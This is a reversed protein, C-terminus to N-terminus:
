CCYLCSVCHYLLCYKWYLDVSPTSFEALYKDLRYIHEFPKVKRTSFILITGMSFKFIRMNAAFLFFWKLRNKYRFKMKWGHRELSLYMKSIEFRLTSYMTSFNRLNWAQLNNRMRTCWRVMRVNLWIEKWRETESFANKKIERGCQRRISTPLTHVVCFYKKWLSFYKDPENVVDKYAMNQM